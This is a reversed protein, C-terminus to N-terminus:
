LYKKFSSLDHLRTRKEPDIELLQPVMKDLNAPLSPDQERNQIEVIKDELEDSDKLTVDVLVAGFSFADARTDILPNRMPDMMKEQVEPAMYAWTEHILEPMSTEFTPTGRAFDM